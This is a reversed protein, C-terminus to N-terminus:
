RDTRERRIVVDGDEVLAPIVSVVEFRRDLEAALEPARRRLDREFTSLVFATGPRGSFARLEEVSAVAPIEPAYFGLATRALGVAVVPDGPRRLAEVEAVARPFDQKPIRYSRAILPVNAAAALLVWAALVGPRRGGLREMAAVVALIGPPLAILYFRPYTGVGTAAAFALFCAVPAFCVVTAVRARRFLAGIGLAGAAALAVAAAAGTWGQPLGATRLTLRLLELGLPWGLSERRALEWHALIGSLVPAYFHCTLWLMAAWAAFVQAMGPREVRRGRVGALALAHGAALFIGSLHFGNAAAMTVAYGALRGPSPERLLRLFWWAGLTECFLLGTYGRANQSFYVQPYCAALLAAAAVAGREGLVERGLLALAAVGAVGLLAAPLRLSLASEGLIAVSVRALLSYFPHQNASHFAAIAELIPPRVYDVLTAIEDLWLPSDLRYFRLAAAAALIGFLLRRARPRWPEAAAPPIGPDPLKLRHGRIAAASLVLADVSLLIGLAPVAPGVEFAGALLAAAAIAFVFRM